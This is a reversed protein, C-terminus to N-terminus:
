KLLKLRRRANIFCPFNIQCSTFICIYNLKYLKYKQSNKANFHYNICNYSKQIDAVSSPFYILFVYLAM